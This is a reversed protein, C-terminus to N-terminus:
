SSTGRSGGLQGLQGLIQGLDTVQDAPPASIASTARGYDFFEMQVKTKIPGPAAGTSTGAKPTATVDIALRRVLGQDDLWVDEPVTTQGGLEQQLQQKKEPTLGQKDAAKAIDVDARYHVTHVGRVDEDGVKTVTGAGQLTNLIQTPNSSDLSGFPNQSSTGFTSPDVKLWAKGGFQAAEQTPVKVYIIEGVYREEIAGFGPITLDLLFSQDAFDISGTGNVPITQGQAALDGTLSVDANKAAATRDAAASVVAAPDGQLVSTGATGSGGPKGGSSGGCAVLATALIGVTTFRSIRAGPVAERLVSM